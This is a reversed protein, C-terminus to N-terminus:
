DDDQVTLTRFGDGTFEIQTDYSCDTFYDAWLQTGTRVLAVNHSATGDGHSTAGGHGIGGPRWWYSRNNYTVQTLGSELCEGITTDGSKDLFYYEEFSPHVEYGGGFNGAGHSTAPIGASFTVWTNEGTDPDQRLLKHVAGPFNGGVRYAPFPDGIYWPEDFHNRAGIFAHLRAGRKSKTSAIFDPEGKLWHMIVAGQKSSMRGHSVGAPLFTYSYRRLQQVGDVSEITLDGELVFIEEDVSHYGAPHQWGDPIYTLQTIAGMSPSESLLRRKMGHPMGPVEFDKWPISHEPQYHIVFDPRGEIEYGPEPPPPPEQALSSEVFLTALIIAMFMQLGSNM